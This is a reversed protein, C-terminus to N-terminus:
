GWVLLTELGFHWFVLSHSSGLDSELGCTSLGVVLGWVGSAM